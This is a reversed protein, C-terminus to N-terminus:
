MPWASVLREPARPPAAAQAEEGLGGALGVRDVGVSGGGAVGAVPVQRHRRGEQEAELHVARVRSGDALQQPQVGRAQQVALLLEGVVRRGAGAVHQGELWRM